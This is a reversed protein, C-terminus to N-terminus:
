KRIIPCNYLCFLSLRITQYIPIARNLIIIYKYTYPYTSEKFRLTVVFLVGLCILVVVALTGYQFRISSTGAMKGVADLVVPSLFQGLFTLSSTMAVARDAQTPTVK